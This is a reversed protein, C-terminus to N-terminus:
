MQLIGVAAVVVALIQPEQYQQLALPKVRVAVALAALVLLRVKCQHAVAVV